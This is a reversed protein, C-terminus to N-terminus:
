PNEAILKQRFNIKPITKSHMKRTFRQFRYEHLVRHKINIEYQNTHLKSNNIIEM